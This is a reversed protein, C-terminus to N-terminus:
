FIKSANYCKKFNLVQQIKLQIIELWNYKILVKKCKQPNITMKNKKNNKKKKYLAPTKEFVTKSWNECKEQSSIIQHTSKEKQNKSTITKRGWKEFVTGQVM